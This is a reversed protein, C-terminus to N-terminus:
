RDDYDITELQQFQQKSHLKDEDFATESHPVNFYKYRRGMLVLSPDMLVMSSMTGEQQYMIRLVKYLSKCPKSTSYESLQPM